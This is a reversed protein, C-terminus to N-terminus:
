VEFLAGIDQRPLCHGPWTSMVVPAMVLSESAAAIWGFHNSHHRPRAPM